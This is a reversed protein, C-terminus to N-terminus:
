VVMAWETAERRCISYQIQIVLQLRQSDEGRLTRTAQTTMFRM